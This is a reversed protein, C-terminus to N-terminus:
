QQQCRSSLLPTVSSDMLCSRHRPCPTSCLHATYCSPPPTRGGQAVEESTMRDQLHLHPGEPVCHVIPQIHPLCGKLAHVRQQLAAQALQVDTLEQVMHLISQLVVIVDPYSHVGPWAGAWGPLPCGSTGCVRRWAGM